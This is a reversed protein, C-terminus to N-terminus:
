PSLSQGVQKGPEAFGGTLVVAGAELRRTYNM